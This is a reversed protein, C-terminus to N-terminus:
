RSPASPRLFVGLKQPLRLDRQLPSIPALSGRCRRRFIFPKLARTEAFERFELSCGRGSVDDNMTRPFQLSHIGHTERPPASLRLFARLEKMSRAHEPKQRNLSNAASISWPFSSSASLGACRLGFFWKASDVLQSLNGSFLCTRCTLKGAAFERVNGITAVLAGRSCRLGIICRLFAPPRLRPNADGPRVSVGFLTLVEALLEHAMGDSDRL